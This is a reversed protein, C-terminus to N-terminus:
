LHEVNNRPSKQFQVISSYLNFMLSCRLYYILKGNPCDVLDYRDCAPELGSKWKTGFACPMVQLICLM